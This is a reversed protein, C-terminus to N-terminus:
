WEETPNSKLKAIKDQNSNKMNIEIKNWMRTYEACYNAVTEGHKIIVVNEYNGIV